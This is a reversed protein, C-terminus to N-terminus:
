YKSNEQNKTQRFITALVVSIFVEEETLLTLAICIPYSVKLFFYVNIQNILSGPLVNYLHKCLSVKKEKFSEM